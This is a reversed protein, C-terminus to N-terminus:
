ANCSTSTCTRAGIANVFFAPLRANCPASACAKCVQSARARAANVFPAHSLDPPASPYPTGIANKPLTSSTSRGPTDNAKQSGGVFLCSVRKSGVPIVKCPPVSTAEAPLMFDATLTSSAPLCRSPTRVLIRRAFEPVLPPNRKKRQAGTAIRAAQHLPLPSCVISNAPASAGLLIIQQRFAAAMAKCLLPPYAVEAHTAFQGNPLVGWPLHEHSNDCLIGVSQLQPIAHVFLTHKRRQSGFMCHHTRTEIHPIGQLVKMASTAWFLSRNPNECSWLIGHQFAFTIIQATAKYLTNAVSVRVLSIGSLTSLGDPEKHSRLPVPARGGPMPISRAASSTGCPPALHLAVVSPRSLIRFLLQLGADSALDITILPCKVGDVAKHDIGRSDVLGEKRVAACLGGSGSFIEIFALESIPRGAIRNRSRELFSALESPVAHPICAPASGTSTLPSPFELHKLLALDEPKIKDPSAGTYAILVLRDGQWPRTEHRCSRAPLFQPKHLSLLTGKASCNPDAAPTTGNKDEFWVEGHEFSSIPCVLNYDGANASDRHLSTCVNLNFSLANFHFDPELAHVYRTLATCSLPFSRTASHLGATGRNVYAGLLVKSGSLHSAHSKDRPLLDFLCALDRKCPTAGQAILTKAFTEAPHLAEIPAPGCTVLFPLEHAMVFSNHKSACATPAKLPPASTDCDCM